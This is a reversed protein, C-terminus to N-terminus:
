SPGSSLSAEVCLRKNVLVASKLDKAKLYQLIEELIEPPCKTLKDEPGTLVESMLFKRIFIEVERLISSEVEESELANAIQRLRNEISGLAM